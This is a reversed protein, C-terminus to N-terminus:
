FPRPSSKSEGLGAEMEGEPGSEKQPSYMYLCVMLPPEMAVFSGKPVVLSSFNM